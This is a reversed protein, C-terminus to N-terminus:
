QIKAMPSPQGTEGEPSGSYAGLTSVTLRADLV